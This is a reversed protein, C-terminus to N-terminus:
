TCAAKVPILGTITASIAAAVQPMNGEDICDVELKAIATAVKKEM